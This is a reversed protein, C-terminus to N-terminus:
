LILTRVAGGDVGTRDASARQTLQVIINVTQSHLEKGRFFFVFQIQITSTDKLGPFSVKRLNMPFTALTWSLSLAHGLLSLPCLLSRPQRMLLSFSAVM